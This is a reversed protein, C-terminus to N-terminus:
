AAHPLATYADHAVPACYTCAQGGIEAAHTVKFGCQTDKVAGGIVLTVLLHFGRTLINRHWSRKAM